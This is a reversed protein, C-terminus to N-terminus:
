KMLLFSSFTILLMLQVIMESVYSLFSLKTYQEGSATYMALSQHQESVSEDTLMVLLQLCDLTTANADRTKDERYREAFAVYTLGRHIDRSKSTIDGAVFQLALAFMTINGGIVAYSVQVFVDQSYMSVFLCTTTLPTACLLLVALIPSSSRNVQKGKRMLFVVRDVLDQVSVAEVSATSTTQARVCAICHICHLLDLRYDLAQLLWAAPFMAMCTSAAAVSLLDMLTWFCWLIVEIQTDSHQVNPYLLFSHYATTSIWYGLSGGIAVQYVVRAMALKQQRLESIAETVIDRITQLFIMDGTWHQCACVLRYLSYQLFGTGVAAIALKAAKGTNVFTHGYLHHDHDTLYSSYGMRLSNILLWASMLLNVAIRQNRKAANQRGNSASIDDITATEEDSNTILCLRMLWRWKMDISVGMDKDGTVEDLSLQSCTSTQTAPSASRNICEM